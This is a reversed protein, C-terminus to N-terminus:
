AAIAVPEANVFQNWRHQSLTIVNGGIEELECAREYSTNEQNAVETIASALGFKSYDQDRIFTELIQSSEGEYLDLEKVALAVAGSANKVPESRHAESIVRMMAAVKEPDSMAQLGDNVASIIASDELKRTASSIVEFGEGEIIRSGVHRRSFKFVSEMNFVMGNTCYGDYVFGQMNLSGNGTESNSLKFGPRMVRAQGNARAVEHSLEDDLFIVKMNMKDPTIHNSMVRLTGDRQGKTIAPLVNELVQKNDLRLYKDSMFARVKGDLVRLLRNEPEREFLKNVNDIVMDTHDELCRMYFKWPICLRASIQRHANETLGFREETQGARILVIEVADLGEFADLGEDSDPSLVLRVNDQTSTLFDRMPKVGTVQNGETQRIVETLLAQLNMSEKM